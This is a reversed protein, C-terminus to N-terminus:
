EAAAAAPAVEERRPYRRGNLWRGLWSHRVLLEYSAVLLAMTAALILLYKAIAPLMLPHFAVQVAGLVPIHIIYIWYSADALYRVAPREADLFRLAAGTLGLTWAWVAVAYAIAYGILQDTWPTYDLSPRTGITWLCFITLVAALALQLHWWRQLASFLSTQRHLLWGVAFATGFGVLAPANPILGFAPPEIGLWSRWHTMAAFAAALPIALLLASFPSQLLLRMARDIIRERFTGKPDAATVISRLLLAACYLLALVYLFWLHTLPLSTVSLGQPGNGGPITPPKGTIRIAWVFCAVTLAGVIPYFVLFPLAIRMARNRVFGGAGARKYLMRGFFGAILFFIPMRFVHVIYFLSGLVTSPEDRVVWIQIDPLFTMTAHLCVGLLLASARLADLAHVRRGETLGTM